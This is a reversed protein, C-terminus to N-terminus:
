KVSFLPHGNQLMLQTVNAVASVLMPHKKLSHRYVQSLIQFQKLRRNITEHRSMILGHRTTNQPIPLIFHTADKYGKDAMAREGTTLSPVFAERALKLDPYLGCPYGGYLWVMYGTRINLAVEYRLGAARFKHSFWAKSFPKPENIKFDVGDPSCYCSQGNVAGQYRDEWVIKM